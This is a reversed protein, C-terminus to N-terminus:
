LTEQEDIENWCRKKMITTELKELKTEIEELAKTEDLIESEIEKINIREIIEHKEIKKNIKELKKNEELLEDLFEEYRKEIKILRSM